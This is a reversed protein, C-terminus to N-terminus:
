KDSLMFKEFIKMIESEKTLYIELNFGTLLFKLHDVVIDSPNCIAVKITNGTRAFPVVKYKKIVEEPILKFANIDIETHLLNILRYGYIESLTHVLQDETLYKLKILAAGIQIGESKTIKLM